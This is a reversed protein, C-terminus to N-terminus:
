SSPKIDITVPANKSIKRLVFATSILLIGASIFYFSLLWAIAVLGANPQTLFIMAFTISIVGTIAPIAKRQWSGKIHAAITIEFIGSILAFAAIFIVIATEAINPKFFLIAGISMILLGSFMIFWRVPGKNTMRFAGIVTSIGSILFIAGVLLLIVKVTETPKIALTLGFLLLLAGRLLHVWWNKGFFLSNIKATEIKM